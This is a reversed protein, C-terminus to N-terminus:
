AAKKESEELMAVLDSIDMPRTVACRGDGPDRAVHPSEQLFQLRPLQAFGNWLRTYRRMSTRTTWNLREVFSTSM